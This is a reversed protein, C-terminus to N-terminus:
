APSTNTRKLTGLGGELVAGIQQAAKIWDIDDFTINMAIALRPGNIQPYIYSGLVTSCVIFFSQEDLDPLAMKLKSILRARIDEVLPAVLESAEASPDTLARCYVQHSIRADDDARAGNLAPSFFASVIDSVLSTSGDREELADFGENQATHIAGFHRSFVEQFLDKKGEWHRNLRALSTGAEATIARITTGDYGERIYVHDAASLFRQRSADSRDSRKKMTMSHVM